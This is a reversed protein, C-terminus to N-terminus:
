NRQEKWIPFGFKRTWTIQNVLIIETDHQTLAAQGTYNVNQLASIHVSDLVATGVHTYLPKPDRKGRHAAESLKNPSAAGPFVKITMALINTDQRRERTHGDKDDSELSRFDKGKLEASVTEGKNWM